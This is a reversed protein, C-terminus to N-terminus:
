AAELTAVLADIERRARKFDYADLADTLPGLDPGGVFESSLEEVADAAKANRKEALARVEALRGLLADRREDTLPAVPAVTDGTSPLGDVLHGFAVAATRVRELAVAAAATDGGKAATELDRTAMFPETAGVNGAVGRLAHALRATEPMDGGGVAGDLPAIAADLQDRFKEVSRRLLRRNGSFRALAPQVELGEVADPMGDVGGDEPEAADPAAQMATTRGEPPTKARKALTEFLHDPDIPKAVHGVMGADLCKKRESEFAHATMAIIPLDTRGLDELIRRTAEFGDMEPMQLDMLVADYADLPAERVRRVAEAGTEAFTVTVGAQDLLGKAVIRNVENDEAVLVSLGRLRDDVGQAPAAIRSRDGDLRWRGTILTDLIESATAALPLAGDLGVELAKSQADSVNPATLLVLPPQAAGDAASLTAVADRLQAAADSSAERHDILVAGFPGDAAAAIGEDLTRAEIPVFSLSALVRSFLARVEDKPEILLVRQGRLDVPPLATTRASGAAIGLRVTCYFTSGRGPESEVGVDGSMLEVLSKVITLGLGTGGYKRTTSADAQTFATFLKSVQAPTMGIGTDRVSLRLVVSDEIWAVAGEEVEVLEVMITVHGAETFKAANSGLNILIQSLRMPDGVLHQPVDPAVSVLIDVQDSKLRPAVMGVVTRIVEDLVFPDHELEMKGSDIKSVDLIDNILGLLLQGSTRVKSLLDHQHPTLETSLALGTLGIVANLPTRIEHSMNALFRAKAEGGEEAAKKARELETVDYYTVLLGRDPLRIVKESFTAGGYKLLRTSKEFADSCYAEIERILQDPSRDDADFHGADIERKMMVLWDDGPGALQNAATMSNRITSNLFRVSLDENLIAVEFDVRGIVDQWYESELQAEKQALRIDTIDNFMSIAGVGEIPFGAVEIIRGHTTTREFRHPDFRKVKELREAVQADLDGPGYEGRAAQFRFVDEMTDGVDFADAGVGFIERCAPNIARIVLDCDILLVGVSLNDLTTRLTAREAALEDRLHILNRNADEAARNAHQLKRNARVVFAVVLGAIVLILTAVIAVRTILGYDRQQDLRVALWKNTIADRQDQSISEFGKELIARLLPEDARAAAGLVVREDIEGAIKLNGAAMRGIEFNVSPLFDVFGDLDGAAVQDLGDRLSGFEILTVDPHQERIVNIISYGARVGIRKGLIDDTGRVYLATLDTAVVQPFDLYTEAFVMYERREPTDGLAFTMDCERAKLQEVTQPWADSPVLEFQAGTATRIANLYDVTMGRHDGNEDIWEFPRFDPDVCYRIPGKQALYAQEDESLLVAADSGHQRAEAQQQALWPLWKATPGALDEATLSAIAKDFIDALIAWDKRVGIRAEARHRLGESEGPAVEVPVVRFLGPPYRNAAHTAVHENGSFLADAQGEAIAGFAAGVSAVEVLEVDDPLGEPLVFGRPLALRRGSLDDLKAIDTDAARTVLVDRETPLMPLDTFALFDRRARTERMSHLVDIDGNRAMDLFEPWTPGNIFELEVGIRDALVQLIDISYGLPRGDESFDFPPWDPLSHVRLVPTEALFRQEEATLNLTPEVAPPGAGLWREQLARREEPTVAAIAKDLISALLPDDLRSAMNQATTGQGGLSIAGTVELDVLLNEGLLYQFIAISGIAADARGSSVARMGELTGDVTLLAIDPHNQRLLPETFYGEPISVTRGRLDDLQQYPTGRRSLIGQQTSAYSRTFHLYEEREPTRVINLMVDLDGSRMMGLFENWTPGTVYSVDFGLKGAVLNMFDISYGRPAGSEAFNFPAFDQENSVRITTRRALYDREEVTLDLAPARATATDGGLWREQLARREEVPVTALAKDLMTALPRAGKRVGFRLENTGPATRVGIIKTNFLGLSDSLYALSDTLDYTADAQGRSVLRVAEAMDAVEIHRIEVGALRLEELGEYGAPLAVSRGDLDELSTIGAEDELVLIGSTTTHYPDTFDMISANESSTIVSTVVDIRGAEIDRLLESWDDDSVFEPEFGLRDLLSVLLEISYGTARGNEFFDFPPYGMDNGVRVVRNEALWRREEDTLPIGPDTATIPTAFAFGELRGLDVRTQGEAVQDAVLRLLGDSVSGLEFVDLRMLREFDHAEALLAARSKRDGYRTLILDAIEEKNALAYHWGRLSAERFAAVMEAEAEALAEGTFLNLFMPTLNPPRILSFPVGSERLQHPQDTIYGTFGDVDGRAFDAVDFSHPVIEVPGVAEARDVLARLEPERQDEDIMMIRRGALDAASRMDPRAVIVLPSRKLLNALIVVPRGQLRATVLDADTVGFSAAGSLVADIPDLGPTLERIEVDLGAEAYYGQAQAAYYGAFEFQHLWNLQLTVPRLPATEAHAEGMPMDLAFAWIFLLTMLVGFRRQLPQRSRAICPTHHFAM